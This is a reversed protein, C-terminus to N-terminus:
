AGAFANRAGVPTDPTLTLDFVGLQHLENFYNVFVVKTTTTSSM